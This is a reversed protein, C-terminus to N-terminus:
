GESGEDFERVLRVAEAVHEPPTSPRVGHGLNFIHREKPMVGVIHEVGRRLAIGGKELAVPDLNGQVVCEAALKERAWELPLSTEVGIGAPKTLMRVMDHSIGAGRAFVIAPTGPREHLLRRVIEANPEVVFRRQLYSPLDGAWSDFVQVADAGADIQAILYALSAEILRAMLDTFWEPSEHALVLM